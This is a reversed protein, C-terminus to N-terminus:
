QQAQLIEVMLCLIQVFKSIATRPDSPHRRRRGCGGAKFNEPSGPSGDAFQHLAVQHAESPNKAMRTGHDGLPLLVGPALSDTAEAKLNTMTTDPDYNIQLGAEAPIRVRLRDSPSLM